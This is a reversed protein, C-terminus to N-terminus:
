TANICLWYYGVEKDRHLQDDRHLHATVKAREEKAKMEGKEDM